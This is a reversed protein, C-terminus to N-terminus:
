FARPEFGLELAKNVTHVQADTQVENEEDSFHFNYKGRENAKMNDDNM